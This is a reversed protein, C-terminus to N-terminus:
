RRRREQLKAVVEPPLDVTRVVSRPEHTELAEWTLDFYGHDNRDRRGWPVHGRKAIKLTGQDTVVGEASILIRDPIQSLIGALLVTAEPIMRVASAAVGGGASLGTAVADAVAGAVSEDVKSKSLLKSLHETIDRTEERDHFLYTSVSVHDFGDLPTSFILLGQGSYERAVDATWVLGDRAVQFPQPSLYFQVDPEVGRREAITLAYARHQNLYPRDLVIRNIRVQLTNEVM